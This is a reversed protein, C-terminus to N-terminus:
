EGEPWHAFLVMGLGLSLLDGAAACWISAAIVALWWLRKKARFSLAM